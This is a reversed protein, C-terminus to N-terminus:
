VWSEVFLSLKIFITPTLLDRMFFNWIRNFTYLSFMALIMVTTPISIDVITSATVPTLPAPAAPPPLLPKKCFCSLLSPFKKFYRLPLDPAAKGPVKPLITLKKRRVAALTKSNTPLCNYRAKEPATASTTIYM